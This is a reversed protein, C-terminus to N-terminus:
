PRGGRGGGGGGAREPGFGEQVAKGIAQSVFMLHAALGPDLDIWHGTQEKPVVLTHGPALPTINLFAVCSPDRWVFCAPVEGEIIRTFVTAVHRERGKETSSLM